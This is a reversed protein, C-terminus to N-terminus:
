LTCRAQTFSRLSSQQTSAGSSVLPRSSLRARLMGLARSNLAEPGQGAPPMHGLSLCRIDVEPRWLPAYM